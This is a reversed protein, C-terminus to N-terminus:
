KSSLKDAIEALREEANTVIKFEVRRSKEIDITIGDELYLPYSYSVDHPHIKKILIESYQGNNIEFLHRLTLLCRDQALVINNLYIKNKDSVKAEKIDGDDIVGYEPSTHGEILIEKISDRFEERDIISVYRPFFDSLLSKFEDSPNAKGQGFLANQNKFRITLNPLIEADWKKLDKSFEKELAQYIKGKTDKLDTAVQQVRVMYIMAIMMFVLMMGTMLDSLPIWHSQNSESLKIM